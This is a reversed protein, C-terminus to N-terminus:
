WCNRARDHVGDINDAATRLAASILEDPLGKPNEVEVEYGKGSAVLAIVVDPQVDAM